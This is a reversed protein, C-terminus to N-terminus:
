SCSTTGTAYSSLNSNHLRFPQGTETLILLTCLMRLAAHAVMCAPAPLWPAVRMHRTRRKCQVPVSPFEMCCDPTMCCALPHSTRHRRQHGNEASFCPTPTSGHSCVWRLPAATVTLRISALSRLYLDRQAPQLWALMRMDVALTVQLASHLPSTCTPNRVRNAAHAAAWSRGHEEMCMSCTRPLGHCSCPVSFVCM